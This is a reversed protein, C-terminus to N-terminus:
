IHKEIEELIIDFFRNGLELLENMEKNGMKEVIEYCVDQYENIEKEYLEKGYTTLEIFVRRRDEKESIREILGKEEVVNLMRSAAPKSINLKDSLKSSTTREGRVSSIHIVNLLAVEGISLKEMPQFRILTNKMKNMLERLQIAQELQEDHMDKEELFNKYM